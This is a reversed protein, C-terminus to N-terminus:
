FGFRTPNSISIIFISFFFINVKATHRNSTITTKVAPQESLQSPPPSSVSSPPPSSPPPSVPKLPVAVYEPVQSPVTPPCCYLPVSCSSASKSAPVMTPFKEPSPSPSIWPVTEPPVISASPVAPNPATTHDPSKEDSPASTVPSQSSSCPAWYPDPVQSAM